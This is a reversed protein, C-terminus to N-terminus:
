FIYIFVQLQLHLLLKNHLVVKVVNKLFYLLFKINKLLVKNMGDFFEQNKCLYAKCQKTLKGVEIEDSGCSKGYYTAIISIILLAAFVGVIVFVLRKAIQIKDSNEMRSLLPKM